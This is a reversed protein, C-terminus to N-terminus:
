GVIKFVGLLNELTPSEQGGKPEITIAYANTGEIFDVELLQSIDEFVTLPIPDLDGKLSWLQYSQDSALNPLDKFQLFNRKSVENTNFVIQTEPYKETAAILISKNDINELEKYLSLQKILAEKEEDCNEKLVNVQTYNERLSHNKYLQYVLTGLLTVLTFIILARNTFIKNSQNPPNTNNSSSKTQSLIDNLVRQPAKVSHALAYTYLVKEILNLDTKLEPYLEIAAEVKAIDNPAIDGIVYLLLLGSERIHQINQLM